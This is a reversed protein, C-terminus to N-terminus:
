KKQKIKCEEFVELKIVLEAENLNKVVLNKDDCSSQITLNTLNQRVISRSKNDEMWDVIIDLIEETMDDNFELIWRKMKLFIFFM